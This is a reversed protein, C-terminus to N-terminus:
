RSTRGALALAAAIRDRGPTLEDLRLVAIGGSDLVEVETHGSGDRRFRLSAHAAGVPVNDLQLGPLWDPLVPDVVLTGRSAVPLLGLLSDLMLIVAGASWAQPSCSDPYLGPHPHRADRAHGGFVEPLRDLDFLQAADLQARVLRHLHAHFGYRRLGFAAVSNSFPWVTGLHYAFPNFAPHASSLTRIGWGSFLDPRMLRDAVREARGEEVIGYALCAGGDDGVSGVQNGHPDRAMAFCGEAEMWFRENFRRKLVAAMGCLREALATEGIEAFAFGLAAQGAHYVAQVDSMAIPTDVLAGDPYLVAEGSDKWSQNRVGKSSHTQYPYFGAEDRNQDMWDLTGELRPRLSRLFAADGTAAFDRAAALMFLGPTSHDGYYTAFPSIGLVALPGQQRQHLVKGPEADRFDDVATANFRPILELTGRLIAPLPMAAQLAAVFGDRGFLGSYNPMGAVVAAGEQGEGEGVGLSVLDSVAQDWVAQVAPDAVRLQACGEALSRRLRVAKNDPDFTGDVGYEPEFPEGDIFPVVDLSLLRTERPQLAVRCFLAEGSDLWGDGGGARVETRLDLRPHAYGLLLTGGPKAASPDWRREVPADQQRTEALVENLDAFDAGLPLGVTLEVPAMGHNTVAVDAHLGRGVFFAFQLEIAKKAVEGPATNDHGSRPGAEDGAPSPALHYSLVSHHEVANASACHPAKGGVTIGFRSLFRTQHLFFGEKGGSLLGNRGTVLVAFGQHAILDHPRVECRNVNRLFTLAPGAKGTTRVTAPGNIGPDTLDRRM